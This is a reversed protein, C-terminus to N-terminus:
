ASSSPTSPRPRTSGSSGCRGLRCSTPNPDDVSTTCILTDASSPVLATPSMRYVRYGVVDREPNPNWEFENFSFHMDRGGTFGTPPSPAYRNLVMTYTRGTGSEGFRDFAEASVLYTGDVVSGINWSFQLADVSESPVM